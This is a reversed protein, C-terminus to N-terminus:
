TEYDIIIQHDAQKQNLGYRFRQAGLRCVTRTIGAETLGQRVDGTLLVYVGRFETLDPM